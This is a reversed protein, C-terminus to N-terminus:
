CTPPAALDRELTAVYAEICAVFDIAEPDLLWQSAMGDLAGLIEVAKLAPDVDARIEGGQQDVM